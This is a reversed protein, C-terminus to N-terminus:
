ENRIFARCGFRVQLVDMTCISCPLVGLERLFIILELFVRPGLTYQDEHLMSKALWKETFLRDSLAKVEQLSNGERLNMLDRRDLEGDESADFTDATMRNMYVYVYKEVIQEIAKRFLVIERCV